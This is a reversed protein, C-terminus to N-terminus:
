LGYIIMNIWLPQKDICEDSQLKSTKLLFQGIYVYIDRVCMKVFGIIIELIERPSFFKLDRNFTYTNVLLLLILM